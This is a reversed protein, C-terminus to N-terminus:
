KIVGLDITGTKLEKGHFAKLSISLIKGGVGSVLLSVGNEYDKISEGTCVTCYDNELHCYLPTRLKITKGILTKLLDETLLVPKNDKDLMYRNLYRKYSKETINIERGVKSKCDTQKIKIDTTARLAVKAVVGGNQTEKGRGYSGSRSDNAYATLKKPDLDWGEHLSDLIGEPEDEFSNGIGFILFMKKRAVNTVKGSLLKGYSPDDKLYDADFELMKKELEAIALPNKAFDEGYKEKMYKLTDKKFKELGKPPLASKETAAISLYRSFNEIYLGADLFEKYEAVTIGDKSSEDDTLMKLIFRNEIDKLTFKENIYPIKCNFCYIGIIYNIVLRGYTTTIRKDINCLYGQEVEIPDKAVLVPDTYDEALLLTDEDVKGFFKKDKVIFYKSEFAENTITAFLGIVWDIDTPYKNEFSYKLYNKINVNLKKM